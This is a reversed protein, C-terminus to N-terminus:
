SVRGAHAHRRLAWVMLNWAVSVALALPLAVLAGLPVVAIHLTMLALSFGVLGWHTSALVAASAPGGIRPHLILMLSTLVIPLVALIGSITPGVKSSIGVVVAILVAVMSARLPVDYWRSMALPMRVHQFRHSLPICISFAVLNLAAVSLLSMPAHDFAVALVTWVALALPLCIILPQRQALAAYTLAYAATAANIAISALTGAAIFAPDHDLALFTYAPGASLPLTAVMAGILPGAREAIMSAAVVFAATVGMKVILALTFSLDPSM